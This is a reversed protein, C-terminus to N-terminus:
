GEIGLLLIRGRTYAIRVRVFLEVTEQLAQWEGIVLLTVSCGSSSRSSCGRDQQSWVQSAVFGASDFRVSM